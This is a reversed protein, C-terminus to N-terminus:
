KLNYFLNKENIDCIQKTCGCSSYTSSQKANKLCHPIVCLSKRIFEAKLFPEHSTHAAPSSTQNSIHAKRTIKTDHTIWTSHMHNTLYKSPHDVLAVAPPEDGDRSYSALFSPNRQVVNANFRVIWQYVILNGCEDSTRASSCAYFDRLDWSKPLLRPCLFCLFCWLRLAQLFDLKVVLPELFSFFCFSFILFSLKALTRQQRPRDLAHSTCDWYVWGSVFKICFAPFPLVFPDFSVPFGFFFFVFFFDLFFVKSTGNPTSWFLAHEFCAKPLKLYKMRFSVGHLSFLLIRHQLQASSRAAYLVGTFCGWLNWM